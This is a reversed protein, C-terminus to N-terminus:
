ERGTDPSPQELPTELERRYRESYFHQLSVGDRQEYCCDRAFRLARQLQRSWENDAMGHKGDGIWALAYAVSYDKPIPKPM